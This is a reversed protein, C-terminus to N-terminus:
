NDTAVHINANNCFFWDGQQLSGRDLLWLVHMLFDFQTNTAKRIDMLIPESNPDLSTTITVTYSTSLDRKPNARLRKNKPGLVKRRYLERSNFHAEDCFKMKEPPINQISVLFNLYNHINSATYKNLQARMDPVKFSWNWSKFLQSIWPQSPVYNSPLIKQLKSRYEPICTEPNFKKSM